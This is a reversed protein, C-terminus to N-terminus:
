KIKSADITICSRINRAYGYKKTGDFPTKTAYYPDATVISGNQVAVGLVFHGGVTLSNSNYFDALVMVVKGACIWGGIAKADCPQSSSAAGPFYKNIEATAQGLSSGDNNMSNYASGPSFIVSDPTLSGNFHRLMMSVSTPGCGATCITGSGGPLGKNSWAQGCQKTLVVKDSVTCEGPIKEGELGTANPNYVSGGSKAGNLPTSPGLKAGGFCVFNEGTNPDTEEVGGEPSGGGCAQKPVHISTPMPGANLWEWTSQLEALYQRGTQGSTPNQYDPDCHDSGNLYNTAFALWYDSIGSCGSAPDLKAFAEWQANFNNNEPIYHIGFDEIDSGLSYNSAGSEHLWAWLAYTPNIGASLAKCVVDNFCRAANVGGGASWSEALTVFADKSIGGYNSAPANVNCNALPGTPPDTLDEKKICAGVIPDSKPVVLSSVQTTAVQLLNYGILVALVIAFVTGIIGTPISMLMGGIGIIVTTAGGIAMGGVTVIKGVGNKLFERTKYSDFGLFELMKILGKEMGSWAKKVVAIAALVAAVIWTPPGGAALATGTAATGAAATAGTAGVEVAKVTGTRLLQVLINQLGKEFGFNVIQSAMAEGMVGGYRSALQMGFQQLGEIKMIRGIQISSNGMAKSIAGGSYRDIFNKAKEIKRILEMRGQLDPRDKLRDAVKVVAEMEPISGRSVVRVDGDKLRRREGHETGVLKAKYDNEIRQVLEPIPEDGNLMSTVVTGMEVEAIKTAPVGKGVMKIKIEHEQTLGNEIGEIGSETAGSRLRMLAKLDAAGFGHSTLKEMMMKAENGTSANTVDTLPTASAGLKNEVVAEIIKEQRGPINGRAGGKLIEVIEETLGREVVVREYRGNEGIRTEYKAENINYEPHVLVKEYREEILKLVEDKRGGLSGGEREVDAVVDRAIEDIKIELERSARNTEVLYQLMENADIISNEAQLSKALEVAEVTTKAKESLEVIEEALRLSEKGLFEDDEVITTVVQGTELILDSLRDAEAKTKGMSHLKEQIEFKKILTAVVINRDANRLLRERTAETAMAEVDDRHKKEDVKDLLVKLQDSRLSMPGVKDNRTEVAPNLDAEIVELAQTVKNNNGTTTEFGYLADLMRGPNTPDFKGGMGLDSFLRSCTNYAANSIELIEGRGSLRGLEEYLEFKKM